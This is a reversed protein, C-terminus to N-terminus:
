SGARSWLEALERAHFARAAEGSDPGDYRGLARAHAFFGEAPVGRGVRSVVVAARLPRGAAVDESMRDELAMALRHITQPPELGLARAAEQYTVTRGDRVVRDLYNSLAQPDVPRSRTEDGM